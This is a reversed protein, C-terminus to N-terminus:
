EKRKKKRRESLSQSYLNRNVRAALKNLAAQDAGKKNDIAAQFPNVQETEEESAEFGLLEGIEEVEEDQLERKGERAEIVAQLLQDSRSEHWYSIPAGQLVGDELGEPRKAFYAIWEGTEKEAHIKDTFTHSVTLGNAEATKISAINSADVLHYFASFGWVNFSLYMLSKEIAKAIGKGQHRGFVALIIQVETVSNGYPALSGLGVIENEIHFLYTFSPFDANLSDQVFKNADRFSWHRANHFTGLYSRIENGHKKFIPTLVVADSKTLLRMQLPGRYSPWNPKNVRLQLEVEELSM